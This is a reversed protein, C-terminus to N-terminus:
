PSAPEQTRYWWLIEVQRMWSSVAPLMVVIAIAAVIVAAFLSMGAEGAGVPFIRDQRVVTVFLVEGAVALPAVFVLYASPLLSAIVTLAAASAFIMGAVLLAAELGAFQTASTLLPVVLAAPMFVLPATEPDQRSAWATYLAIGILALLVAGTSMVAAYVTGHAFDLYPVRVTSQRIVLLPFLVLSTALNVTVSARWGQGMQSRDLSGLILGPIILPLVFLVSSEGVMSAAILALLFSGAAVVDPAALTVVHRWGPLVLSRPERASGVVPAVAPAAAFATRTVRDEDSRRAAPAEHTVRDEHRRPQPSRRSRRDPQPAYRPEEQTRPPMHRVKRGTADDRAAM